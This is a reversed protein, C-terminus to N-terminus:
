ESGSRIADTLGRLAAGVRRALNELDAHADESLYGLRRALHIQYRVEALSGHAVSCFHLYESTSDRGAGEAINSPVSVGARRMQQTLGYQEERPFGKTHEYVAVALDDALQWASINRFDRPM